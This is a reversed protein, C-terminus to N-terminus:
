FLSLFRGEPYRQRPQGANRGTDAEEDNSCKETSRRREGLVEGAEAGRGYPYSTGPVFQIFRNQPLDLRHESMEDIPRTM